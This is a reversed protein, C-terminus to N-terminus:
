EILGLQYQIYFFGCLILGLLFLFSLFWVYLLTKAETHVINVQRTDKLAIGSENVNNHSNRSRNGTGAENLNNHSNRMYRTEKKM